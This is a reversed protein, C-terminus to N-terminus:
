HPLVIVNTENGKTHEREQLLEELINANDLRLQAITENKEKMVMEFGEFRSGHSQTSSSGGQLYVKDVWDMWGHGGVYQYIPCVFFLRGLNEKTTSVRKICVKDCYKCYVTKEENVSETWM